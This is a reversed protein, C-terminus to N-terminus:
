DMLYLIGKASNEVAFFEDWIVLAANISRTKKSLEKSIIEIINKAKDPIENKIIKGKEQFSSLDHFIQVSQVLNSIDLIVISGSNDNSDIIANLLQSNAKKIIKQIRKTNDTRLHKCEFFVSKNINKNLIRFDPYGEKEIPEVLLKKSKYWDAVYLEVLLDEYAEKKHIRSIIKKQCNEEGYNRINGLKFTQMDGESIDNLILSNFIIRGFEIFDNEQEPIFFSGKQEIARKCLKWHIYAPHKKQM